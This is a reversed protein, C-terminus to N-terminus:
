PHAAVPRNATAASQLPAFVVAANFVGVIVRGNAVVPVAFATGEGLVDRGTMSSNWLERSVLTADYAHLVARGGDPSKQLAWVIGNQAGNSSVVTNAGRLGYSTQSQAFPAAAVTGAGQFHFQRLPGNATGIYLNQNWYSVNGYLRQWDTGEAFENGIGTFCARNGVLLMQPIQTDGAANFHGLSDLNLIYLRGEKNIVAALRRTPDVEAPLIAVGGSGIELDAQNLCAQNSPSFWDVVSFGNAGLNLKIVSDGMNTGGPQDANFSGDAAVQYINGNGDIAPSAGGGWFSGGGGHDAPGNATDSAQFKTTPNFVARQQLTAADYAMLWGHYVGFDSFSGWSVLILGNLEVLGQRQNQISPDFAIQGNVSGRGDGPVSAQVQVSGPGFDKGTRIDIARLWQEAKGNRAIMTSFYMIATAPDIVPTGTIGVEGGLSTRGGFDDPETTIGNAPDTYHRVWLPNAGPHDVDFAYVSNHENALIVVNHVGAAGMDLNSVFLPQAMVLGDTVFTGVKGFGAVNVNAPTLATEQDYLGKGSIDGKWKLVGNVASASTPTPTPQPTPTAVPASAAGRIGQCGALLLCMAACLLLFSSHLVARTGRDPGMLSSGDTLIFDWERRSSSAAGLQV